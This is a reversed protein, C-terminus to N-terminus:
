IEATEHISTQAHISINNGAGHRGEDWSLSAEDRCINPHEDQLRFNPQFRCDIKRMKHERALAVLAQAFKKHADHILAPAEDTM